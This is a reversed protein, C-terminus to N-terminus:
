KWDGQLTFPAWYYPDRWQQNNFMAIQAQRLAAAPSKGQGLLNKYFLPMLESTGQDSVDWLSVLVRAAGAYMFGRTLGILGEGRIEKGLGTECASLVVLDAHLHLNYIDQLRLFGDEPNGNRDVLSLVLASLEPHRSDMYGHTAFHLYKYRGLEPSMALGRNADFGIAKLSANHPALAFIKNAEIATFRLRSIPKQSAGPNVHELLREVDPLTSRQARTLRKSSFRPDHDSFVPDALVALGREAPSRHAMFDRQAAIASASPVNVIEHTLVLPEYRSELGPHNLAAFPIYQLAGDAAIVLRETGLKEAVPGLVVNSLESTASILADDIPTQKNLLESVKRCAAEIQKRPPLEYASTADRTIVWLYSKEDGLYYELFLTQDDLLEQVQNASLYKPQTLSAYGQNNKVKEAELLNYEAELQAIRDEVEKTRLSSGRAQGPEERWLKLRAAATTALESKIAQERKALQPDNEQVLDTGMNSLIDVFSRARARESIQFAWASSTGSALHGPDHLSLDIYLEYAEEHAGLFSARLEFPGIGAQLKELNEIANQAQRLSESFNGSERQVRALSLEAQAKCEACGLSVAINLAQQLEEVAQNTKQLSLDLSGMGLLSRFVGLQYGAVQQKGLAQQFAEQAKEPQQLAQYVLGMISITDGERRSDGAILRLKVAQEGWQLAEAPQGQALLVEARNTLIEALLTPDNVSKLLLLQGAQELYRLAQEPENMTRYAYAINRWAIAQERWDAEAEFVSAAREYANLAATWSGAEADLVGLNNLAAARLKPALAAPLASMADQYYQMAKLHEGLDHYEGGLNNLTRADMFPNGASQFLPLAALYATISEHVRSKQAQLYGISFLVLAHRESDQAGATEYYQLAEQFRAIAADWDKGDRTSKLERAREMSREAAIHEADGPAPSRLELVRIRYRGPRSGKNGPAVRVRYLGSSEAIAVVPEPGYDENMSDVTTIKQGDPTSLTVAVDIGEQDVALYLFQGALLSVQYEHAEGGKLQRELQIGQELRTVQQDQLIVNAPCASIGLGMLVVLWWTGFRQQYFM